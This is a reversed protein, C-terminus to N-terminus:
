VNEYRDGTLRKYARALGVLEVAKLQEGLTLVPLINLKHADYLQHDIRCLPVVSDPHVYLRKGRKEDYKRGVTHALDLGRDHRKCNRCVFPELKRLADSWNRDPQSM